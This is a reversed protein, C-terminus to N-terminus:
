KGRLALKQLVFSSTECGSASASKLWHIAEEDNRHVDAGYLREGYLLMLGITRQADRNGQTAAVRFQVLAESYRYDMAAALGIEYAHDASMTASASTSFLLASAASLLMTKYKMNM